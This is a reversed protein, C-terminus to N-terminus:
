VKISTKKQFTGLKEGGLSALNKRFKENKESAYFLFRKQLNLLSRRRQRSCCINM